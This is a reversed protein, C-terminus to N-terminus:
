GYIAGSNSRLSFGVGLSAPCAVAYTGTSATPLERRKAGRVILIAITAGKVTRAPALVGTLHLILGLLERSPAVRLERSRYPRRAVQRARGPPTREFM